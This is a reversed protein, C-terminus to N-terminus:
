SCGPDGAACMSGGGHVLLEEEEEEVDDSDVLPEAEGGVQCQLGLEAVLGM